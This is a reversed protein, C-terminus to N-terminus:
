YPIQLATCLTSMLPKADRVAQHIVEVLNKGQVTERSLPYLGIFSTLRIADAV